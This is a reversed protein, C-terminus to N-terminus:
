VIPESTSASLAPDEKIVPQEPTEEKKEEIIPPVENPQPAKYIYLSYFQTCCSIVAYTFFYWLFIKFNSALNITFLAFLIVILIICRVWIKKNSVEETLLIVNTDNKNLYKSIYDYAEEIVVGLISIILLYYEENTIANFKSYDLFLFLFAFSYFLTNEYPLEFSSPTVCKNIFAGIYTIIFFLPYAISLVTFTIYHIGKLLEMNHVTKFQVLRFNDEIDDYMKAAAGAICACLIYKLSLTSTKVDLENAIDAITM